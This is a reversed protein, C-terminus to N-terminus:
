VEPGERGAGGKMEHGWEGKLGDEVGGVREVRGGKGGEWGRWGGMRERGEGVM